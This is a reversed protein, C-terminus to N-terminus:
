KSAMAGTARSPGRSLYIHTCTARGHVGHDDVPPGQTAASLEDCEVVRLNDRPVLSFGCRTIDLKKAASIRRDARHTRWDQRIRRFTRVLFNVGILATMRQVALIGM